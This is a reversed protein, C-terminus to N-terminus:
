SFKIDAELVLPISVNKWLRKKRSKTIFGEIQKQFIFDAFANILSSM